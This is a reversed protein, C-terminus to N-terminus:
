IAGGLFPEASSCGFFYCVWYQRRLGPQAKLTSTLHAFTRVAPNGSSSSIANDDVVNDLNVGDKVALIVTGTMPGAQHM